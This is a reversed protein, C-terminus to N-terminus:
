DRRGHRRAQRDAGAENGEEQRGDQVKASLEPLEEDRRHVQSHAHQVPKRPDQRRIRPLFCRGHAETSLAGTRRVSNIRRSDGRARARRVAFVCPPVVYRLDSSNIKGNTQLKQSEEKLLGLLTKSRKARKNTADILPRVQRSIETEEESTTAHIAAESYELLLRSANKVFEIDDKITEVERFFHDMPSPAKACEAMEVDGRGRENEFHDGSETADEDDFAGIDGLRDNM